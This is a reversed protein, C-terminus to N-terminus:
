FEAFPVLGGSKKPDGRHSNEWDENEKEVDAVPSENSVDPSITYELNESIIGDSEEIDWSWQQNEQVELGQLDRWNGTSAELPEITEATKVTPENALVDPLSAVIASLIIMSIFAPWLYNVLRLPNM